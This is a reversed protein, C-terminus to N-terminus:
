PMRFFPCSIEANGVERVCGRNRQRLISRVPNILGEELLFESCEAGTHLALLGKASRHPLLL